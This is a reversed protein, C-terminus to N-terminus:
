GIPTALLLDPKGDGNYDAWVAARAGITGPTVEGFSEGGNRLVAIKCAGVLCLDLKGSGEMDAISVGLAEPDVRSRTSFPSFGPMGEIRRFDEGGWGVFDRKPNYDLLKLSVRLRQIKGKCLELEAKNGDALYSVIVEKNAMMDKVAAILKDVSGYY